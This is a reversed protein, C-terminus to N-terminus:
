TSSAKLRLVDTEIIKVFQKARSNTEVDNKRYCIFFIRLPSCLNMKINGEDDM